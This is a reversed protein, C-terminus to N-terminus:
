TPMSWLSGLSPHVDWCLSTQDNIPHINVLPLPYHGAVMCTDCGSFTLLELCSSLIRRWTTKNQHSTSWLGGVLNRQIEWQSLLHFSYWYVLLGLKSCWSDLRFTPGGKETASDLWCNENRIYCPFNFSWCSWGMSTIPFDNISRHPQSAAMLWGM